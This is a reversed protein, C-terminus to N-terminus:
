CTKKKNPKLRIISKWDAYIIRDDKDFALGFCDDVDVTKKLSTDKKDVAYIGDRLCIYVNGNKDTTIGRPGVNPFEEYFIADKTGMKQSYLGSSNTYFMVDENDIIFHDVKTDELDKFRVVTGNILTYLFQSPFESYYLVDKYFITWIDSGRQGIFEATNTDHDYKYIGDNSGIYVDNNEEDVSQAFGNIIDIESFEKSDLEIKATRFVDDDQKMSYSFYLTNTSYDVDLMYPRDLDEKIIDKEHYVGNVIVGDCTPEKAVGAETEKEVVINARIVTLITLLLFSRM